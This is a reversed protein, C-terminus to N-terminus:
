PFCMKPLTKKRAEEKDIGTNGTQTFHLLRQWLSRGSNQWVRFHSTVAAFRLTRPLLLPLEFVVAPHHGVEGHPVVVPLHSIDERHM